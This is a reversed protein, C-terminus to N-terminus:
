HLAYKLVSGWIIKLSPAQMRKLEIYPEICPKDLKLNGILDPEFAFNKTWHFNSPAKLIQNWDLDLHSIKLFEESSSTGWVM